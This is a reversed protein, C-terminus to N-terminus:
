PTTRASSPTLRETASPSITARTPEFHAPLLVRMFALMTLLGLTNFALPNGFYIGVAHPGYRELIPQLRQAVFAM